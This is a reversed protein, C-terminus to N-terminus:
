MKDICSLTTVVFHILRYGQPCSGVRKRGKEKKVDKKGEKKTGEKDSWGTNTTGTKRSVETYPM